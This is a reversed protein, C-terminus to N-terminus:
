SKVGGYLRRGAELYQMEHVQELTPPKAGPARELSRRRAWAAALPQRSDSGQLARLLREWRTKQQPQRIHVDEMVYLLWVVRWEEDARAASKELLDLMPGIRGPDSLHEEFGLHPSAPYNKRAAVFANLRMRRVAGLVLRGFGENLYRQPERVCKAVMETLTDGTLVDSFVAASVYGEKDEETQAYGGGHIADFYDRDSGLKVKEANIRFGIKQLDAGIAPLMAELRDRSHDFIRYDDVFRIFNGTHRKVVEDVVRLYANGLFFLSDNVLPLGKTQAGFSEVLSRLLASETSRPALAEIFDLFRSRDISQFASELDIQLMHPLSRLRAQTDEQFRGWAEIQSDNLQVRAPDTNYRYSHVRERDLTREAQEAIASVCAQLVIQDNTSPIVWPKLAGARNPVLITSSATPREGRAYAAIKREISRRKAGQNIDVVDEWPPVPSSYSVSDLAIRVALPVPLGPSAGM